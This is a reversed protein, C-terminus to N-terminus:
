KNKTTMGVIGPPTPVPIAPDVAVTDNNDDKKEEKEDKKREVITIKMMKIGRRKRIM